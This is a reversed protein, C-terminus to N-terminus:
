RFSRSNLLKRCGMRSAISRSSIRIKKKPSDPATFALAMLVEEPMWLEGALIRSLGIFTNDLNASKTLIGKAGFDKLCKRLIEANGNEHVALGTFVVVPVEYNNKEQFSELTACGQNSGGLNLDLFVLDPKPDSCVADIADTLTFMPIVSISESTIKPAIRELHESLAVCLMQHDDVLLIQM